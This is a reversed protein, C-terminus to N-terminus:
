YEILGEDILTQRVEDYIQNGAGIDQIQSNLEEIKKGIQRSKDRDEDTVTTAVKLRQDLIAQERAMTLYDAKLSEVQRNRETIEM